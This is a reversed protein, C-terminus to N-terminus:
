PNYSKYTILLTKNVKFDTNLETCVDYVSNSLNAVKYRSEPLTKFYRKIIRSTYSSNISYISLLIIILVGLLIPILVKLLNKINFFRSTQIQFRNKIRELRVNSDM